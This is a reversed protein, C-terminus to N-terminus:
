HKNVRLSACVRGLVRVKSREDGVVEMTRFAPNDSIVLLRGLMVQVRKIYLSDEYQLAYLADGRISTQSCDVVAVDGDSLTPQMSDGRVPMLALSRRSAGPAYDRLWEPTVRVLSILAPAYGAPEGAGCSAAVDYRPIAVTGDDMVLSDGASGPASGYQLWAPSVSFHEALKALTESKPPRNTKLWTGVTQKPAGIARALDTQTERRDELLARLRDAFREM